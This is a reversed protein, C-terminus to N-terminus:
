GAHKIKAMAERIQATVEAPQKAAELKVVKERYHDIVQMVRAFLPVLCLLLSMFVTLLQRSTQGRSTIWSSHRQLLVFHSCQQKVACSGKKVILSGVLSHQCV